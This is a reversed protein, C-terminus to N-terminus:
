SQVQCYNETIYLEFLNSSRPDISIFITPQRNVTVIKATIEDGSIKRIHIIPFAASIESRSSRPGDIDREQCYDDCVLLETM